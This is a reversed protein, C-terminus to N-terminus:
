SEGELAAVIFGDVNNGSITHMYLHSFVVETDRERLAPVFGITYMQANIKHCYPSHEFPFSKIWEVYEELTFGLSTILHSHPIGVYRFHWPEHGIGTIWEKGEPYRQIFGYQVATERFCQCVGSYPFSPTIFDIHEAKQAVDIALGTQHESCDPLAVYTRAYEEGEAEITNEMIRVQEAKSRYASVPVIHQSAQAKQVAREYLAAATKDMQIGPIVSTLTSQKVERRVPHQQNVLVLPGRFVDEFSLIRKKQIIIGNM